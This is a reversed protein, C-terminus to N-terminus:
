KRKSADWTLLLYSGDDDGDEDDEDLVICNKEEFNHRRAQIQRVMEYYMATSYKEKIPFTFDSLLHISIMQM